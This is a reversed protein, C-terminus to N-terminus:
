FREKNYSNLPFLINLNIMCLNMAPFTVEHTEFVTNLMSLLVCLKFAILIKLKHPKLFDNIKM